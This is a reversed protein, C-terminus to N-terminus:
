AKHGTARLLRVPLVLSRCVALVAVTAAFICVNKKRPLEAPPDSSCLSSMAYDFLAVAKGGRRASALGSEPSRGPRPTTEGAPRAVSGDGGDRPKVKGKGKGTDNGPGAM